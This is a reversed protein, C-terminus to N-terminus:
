FNFLECDPSEMIYKLMVTPENFKNLIAICAIQLSNISNM